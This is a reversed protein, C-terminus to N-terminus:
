FLSRIVGGVGVSRCSSKYYDLSKGWSVVRKLRTGKLGVFFHVSFFM